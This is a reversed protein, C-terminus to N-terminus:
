IIMIICKITVVIDRLLQMFLTSNVFVISVPTHIYIYISPIAFLLTLTSLTLLMISYLLQKVKHDHCLRCPGQPYHAFKGVQFM